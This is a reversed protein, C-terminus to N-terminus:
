NDAQYFAKLQSNEWQLREIQQKLQSNEQQYQLREEDSTKRLQIIMTEKKGIIGKLVCIEEQLVKLYNETTNIDVTRHQDARLSSTDITHAQSSSDHPIFAKSVSTKLTTISKGVKDAFSKTGTKGMSLFSNSKLGFQWSM